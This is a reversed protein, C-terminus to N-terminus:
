LGLFPLGPDNTPLPRYNRFAFTVSKQKFEEDNYTLNYGEVNTPFVQEFVYGKRLEMRNNYQRLTIDPCILKRELLGDNGIAIMWPRFFSHEIDDQTDFFNIALNKSLFDVRKNLAYGPLFGGTNQAGAIDFQSNENPVTVERAVLMNGNKEFLRPETVARWSNESSYSKRASINIQPILDNNYNFNVKWLFPHSLFFRESYSYGDLFDYQEFAM